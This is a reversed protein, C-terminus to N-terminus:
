VPLNDFMAEVPDEGQAADGRRARPQVNSSCELTEIVRQLEARLEARAEPQSVAIEGKLDTIRKRLADTM